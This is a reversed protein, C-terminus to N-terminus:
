RIGVKLTPFGILLPALMFGSDSWPKHLSQLQPDNPSLVLTRAGVIQLETLRRGHTRLHLGRKIDRIDYNFGKSLFCIPAKAGQRALVAFRPSGEPCFADAKEYTASTAVSTISKQALLAADQTVFMEKGTLEIAGIDKSRGIEVHISNLRLGIEQYARGSSALTRAGITEADSVFLCKRARTAGVFLVRAEELCEAEQKSLYTSARPLFLIVNDCERGKSTHVTGIIPGQSGFDVDCFEIPPSISSLREQMYRIDLTNRDKGFYQILLKWARDPDLNLAPSIRAGWLKDFDAREQKPSLWDWYILAIWTHIVPPLGSLRLRFPTNSACYDNAARLAEGRTRFLVFTDGPPLASTFSPLEAGTPAAGNRAAKVVRRVERLKDKAKAEGKVIISRAETFFDFLKPQDTRHITKLEVCSFDDLYEKIGEPLTGKMGTSRGRESFDYIAQAQDCFVTVGATKPLAYILELVLEMRVGVVDQAEDVFLHSVSSLYEFVGEHSKILEIVASINADFSGALGASSDFGTNIAWAHSDITAVRIGFANSKDHLYTALRNRLEAVATRTFSVVWINGPSVGFNDILWAIRAALVATKGTGPGGDVIQRLFEESQIVRLQENNWTVPCDHVKMACHWKDNRTERVPPKTVSM